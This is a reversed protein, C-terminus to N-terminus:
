SRSFLIMVSKPMNQGPMTSKGCNSDIQPLQFPSFSAFFIMISKPTDWYKPGPGRKFSKTLSIQAAIISFHPQPQEVKQSKEDSSSPICASHIPDSFMPAVITRWPVNKIYQIQDGHFARPTQIQLM